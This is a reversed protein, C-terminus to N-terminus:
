FGVESLRTLPVALVLLLIEVVTVVAVAVKYEM